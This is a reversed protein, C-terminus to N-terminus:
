PKRSETQLVAVGQPALHVSEVARGDGLIDLMPRPLRVDVAAANHDILIFIERSAGIRRCVEVGEPAAGFVPQVRAADIMQRAASRMLDRDLLAGICAITGSGVSRGIAAAQGELWGNGAGYRLLTRTDPASASLQEAWIGAKGEGWEGAVPVPDLLAYFQEVRGGLPAALPGPQRQPNLANFEDKM